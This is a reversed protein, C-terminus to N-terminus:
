KTQIKMIQYNEWIFVNALFYKMKNYKEYIYLITFIINQM